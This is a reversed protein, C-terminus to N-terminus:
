IEMGRYDIYPNSFKDKIPVVSLVIHSMYKNVYANWITDQQTYKAEVSYVINKVERDTLEGRVRKKVAEAIVGYDIDNRSVFTYSLGLLECLAKASPVNGFKRM